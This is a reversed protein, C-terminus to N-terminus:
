AGSRERPPRDRQRDHRGVSYQQQSWREDGLVYKAVERECAQPGQVAEIGVGVNRSSGGGVRHEWEDAPGELMRGVAWQEREAGIWKCPETQRAAQPRQLRDGHRCAQSRDAQCRAGGAAHTVRPLRRRYEHAQVRHQELQRYSAGVVVREHKERQRSREGEGRARGARRRCPVRRARCRRPVRRARARPPRGPAKRAWRPGPSAPALRRARALPLRWVERRRCCRDHCAHAHLGGGSQYQWEDHQGRRRPSFTRSHRHGGNGRERQKRGHRDDPESRV